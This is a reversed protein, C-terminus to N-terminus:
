RRSIEHRIKNLETPTTSKEKTNEEREDILKIANILHDILSLPKEKSSELSLTPVARIISSLEKSALNQPSVHLEEMDRSSTTKVARDDSIPTNSTAM